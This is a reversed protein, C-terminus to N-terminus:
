APLMRRTAAITHATTHVPQVDDWLWDGPDSGGAECGWAVTADGADRGVADRVLPSWWEDSIGAPAVSGLTTGAM